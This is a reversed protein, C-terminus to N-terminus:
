TRSKNKVAACHSIDIQTQECRSTVSFDMGPVRNFQPSISVSAHILFDIGQLLMVHTCFSFPQKFLFIDCFRTMTDRQFPHYVSCVTRSHQRPDPFIVPTRKHTPLGECAKGTAIVM